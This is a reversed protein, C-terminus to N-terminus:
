IINYKYLSRFIVIKVNVNIIKLILFCFYTFQFDARSLKHSKKVFLCISTILSTYDSHSQVLSKNLRFFDRLSQFSQFSQVSQVLSVQSFQVSRVLSFQGSQVSWVLNVQSFQSFQCLQGFQRLLDSLSQVLRSTIM